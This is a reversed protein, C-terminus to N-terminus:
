QVVLEKPQWPCEDWSGAKDYDEGGDKLLRLHEPRFAVFGPTGPPPTLDVPYVYAIDGAPNIGLIAPGTVVTVQGLYDFHAPQDPEQGIIQVMDGPKFANM